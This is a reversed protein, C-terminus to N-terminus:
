KVIIEDEDEPDVAQEIFVKTKIFWKHKEDTQISDKPLAFSFPMDITEEEKINRDFEIHQEEIHKDHWNFDSDEKVEEYQMYLLLQIKEIPEEAQGGKVHVTGHIMDGPSYAKQEITTDVTVSNIGISSFFDKWM